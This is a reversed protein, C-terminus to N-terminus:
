LRPQYKESWELLAQLSGSFTKSLSIRYPLADDLDQKKYFAVQFIELDVKRSTRHFTRQRHSMHEGGRKPGYIRHIYNRIM